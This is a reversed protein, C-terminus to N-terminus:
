KKKTSNYGNQLDQKDRHGMKSTDPLNGGNAGINKGTNFWGM